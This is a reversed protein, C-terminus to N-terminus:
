GIGVIRDVAATALSRSRSDGDSVSLGDPFLVVEILVNAIRTVSILGTHISGDQGSEQAYNFFAIEEAVGTDTGAYQVSAFENVIPCAQSDQVLRVFAETAAQDSGYEIVSQSLTGDSVTWAASFTPGPLSYQDESSGAGCLPPFVLTAEYPTTGPGSEGAAQIEPWTLLSNQSLSYPVAGGSGGSPPASSTETSAEPETEDIPEDSTAQEAADDGVDTPDAGSGGATDDFVDADSATTSPDAGLQPLVVVGGIALVAVVLASGAAVQTRLRRTRRARVDRLGGFEDSHDEVANRLSDFRDRLQDPM